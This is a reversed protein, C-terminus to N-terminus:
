RRNRSESVARSYPIGGIAAGVGTIAGGILGGGFLGFGIGAGIIAGVIIFAWQAPTPNPKRAM